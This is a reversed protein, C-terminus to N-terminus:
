PQSPFLGQICILSLLGAPPTISPLAFYGSPTSVTNHRDGIVAYLTQNESIPLVAGNCRAWNPPVFDFGVLIIEGVYSEM